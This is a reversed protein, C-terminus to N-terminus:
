KAITESLQFDCQDSRRTGETGRHRGMPLSWLRTTMPVLATLGITAPGDSDKGAWYVNYAQMGNLKGDQADISFYVADNRKERLARWFSM